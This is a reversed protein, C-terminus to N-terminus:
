IEEKDKTPQTYDELIVYPFPREFGGSLCVLDHLGCALPILKDYLWNVGWLEDTNENFYCRLGYFSVKHTPKPIPQM